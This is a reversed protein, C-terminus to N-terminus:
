LHLAPAAEKEDTLAASGTGMWECRYGSAEIMRCTVEAVMAEDEVVLVLPQM